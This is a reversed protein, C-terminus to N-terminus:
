GHRPKKQKKLTDLIFGELQRASAAWSFNETIHRRGAEAIEERLGKNRVLRLIGEALEEASGPECVLATKGATTYDPVAGVRTVVVACGCAMAEMPPMGFGELISPFLFIDCSNYLRRLRDRTPRQHFEVGEPVDPGKEPGFVVLKIRPEQKQALQFARFGDAMGKWEIDRYSLLVRLNGDKDRRSGAADEVFFQELDPAHPILVGVPAHLKDELIERLWSSNVINKLGLKFSADVKDAPGGWVEYHQILYFKEGKGPDFGAVHYATEWWTAIVVDGEPIYKEALTPTRVLRGRYDFWDLPNDAAIKKAMTRGRRLMLGPNYWSAGNSMPVAPYVVTVEHGMDILHNSFELVAKVGGSLDVDPAIFTIKLKKDSM